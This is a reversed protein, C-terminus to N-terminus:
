AAALFILRNRYLSFHIYQQISFSLSCFSVYRKHKIYKNLCLPQQMKYPNTSIYPFHNLFPKSFISLFLLLPLKQFTASPVLTQLWSHVNM